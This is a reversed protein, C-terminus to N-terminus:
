KGRKKLETFTLEPVPNIRDPNEVFEKLREKLSRGSYLGAGLVTDYLKTTKDSSLYRGVKYHNMVRQVFYLNGTVLSLESVLKEIEEDNLIAM